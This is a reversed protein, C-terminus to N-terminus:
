WTCRAIATRKVEADIDGSSAGLYYVGVPHRAGDEALLTIGYSPPLDGFDMTPFTSSVDGVLSFVIDSVTGGGALVVVQAEGPGPDLQEFPPALEIRVAHTGPAVESFIFAGNVNTSTIKEGPEFSGSGNSDIYVDIGAQGPESSQRSGDENSDTYVAGLLYGTQSTGNGPGTGVPPTIAFDVDGFSAGPSVFFPSFGTSPDSLSWNAPSVVGINLVTTSVVPITLSYEGNINTTTIQEGADFQGNRNVDGFITVDPVYVDVDNFIGDGNIDAFVAGTFDVQPAQAPGPDLLFNLHEVGSVIPTGSFSFPTGDAQLPVELNVDYDWVKFFDSSIAWETKYNQLFGGFSLTDEVAARGLPDDVTIIYDDPVLDFYYNGDAGTVFQDILIDPGDLVGNGNVDRHASVTVNAGMSEHNQDIVNVVEGFRVTSLDGDFNLVQQTVRSYNFLDDRNDDVGILGQVRETNAGIPSGHWAIEIGDVTFATASYNEFHLQWGQELLFSTAPEATTPDFIIQSDSREGWSRNSTFTAVLPNPDTDATVVHGAGPEDLPQVLEFPVNQPIFSAGNQEIFFDNLEHHTGDPSILLVRMNDLFEIDTGSFLEIKVDVSEITMTNSDPVELELFGGREPFSPPPFAFPDTQFYEDWFGVFGANGGLSGPVYQSSLNGAGAEAAPLTFAFGGPPSVFSTFTLENPLVQNKTHWQQALQVALEADVVGHAYGIEEGNVGYGQSVTYGAGNTLM